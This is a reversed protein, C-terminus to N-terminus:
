HPLRFMPPNCLLLMVGCKSVVDNQKRYSGIARNAVVWRGGDSLARELHISSASSRIRTVDAGEPSRLLKETVACVHLALFCPDCRCGSHRSRRRLGQLRARPLRWLQMEAAQGLRASGWRLLAGGAQAAPRGPGERAAAASSEEGKWSERYRRRRGWMRLFPDSHKWGEAIQRALTVRLPYRLTLTARVPYRLTVRLPYRLTARVPYRANAQVANSQHARKPECMLARQCKCLFVCCPQRTSCFARQQGGLYAREMPLTDSLFWRTSATCTLTYRAKHM